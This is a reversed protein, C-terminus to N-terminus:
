GSSVIRCYEAISLNDDLQTYYVDSISNDQQLCKSTVEVYQNSFLNHIINEFETCNNLLSFDITSEPKKLLFYHVDKLFNNMDANLIMCNQREDSLRKKWKHNEEM